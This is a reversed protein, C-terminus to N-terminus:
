ANASFTACGARRQLITAAERCKEETRYGGAEVLTCGAADILRWHWDGGCFRTSSIKMEDARYVDFHPPVEERSAPAFRFVAAGSRGPTEGVVQFDKRGM